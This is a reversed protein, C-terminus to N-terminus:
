GDILDRCSLDDFAAFARELHNWWINPHHGNEWQWPPHFLKRVVCLRYDALMREPTYETIGADTLARHYRELLPMELRRRREPFWFLAMLQALDKVALDVNWTQWDILRITDREPDKPFLVNGIHVDDHVVTYGDPELLREYLKPLATLIEAYIVRRQRSLREGLFAAFRGVQERLGAIRREIGEVSPRAQGAVEFPPERWWAAHLRALEDVVTGAYEERIPLQSAPEGFHTDSVDELLVHTRGAEADFQADLCRLLAQGPTAPAITAYFTVEAGTARPVQPPASRTFKLFLREPGAGEPRYTVRLRAMISSATEGADLEIRRVQGRRLVGIERLVRTLWSVSVHDLREIVQM